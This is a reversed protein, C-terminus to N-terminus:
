LAAAGMWGTGRPRDAAPRCPGPPPRESRAEGRGSVPGEPQVRSRGQCGGTAPCRILRRATSGSAPATLRGM